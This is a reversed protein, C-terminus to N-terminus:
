TTAERGSGDSAPRRSPILHRRLHLYYAGGVLCAAVFMQWDHRIWAERQAYASVLFLLVLMAEIVYSM